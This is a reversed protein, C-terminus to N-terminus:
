YNSITLTGYHSIRPQRVGNKKGKTQSWSLLGPINANIQKQRNSDSSMEAASAAVPPSSSGIM